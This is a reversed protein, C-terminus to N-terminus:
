PPVGLIRGIWERREVHGEKRVASQNIHRFPDLQRVGHLNHMHM